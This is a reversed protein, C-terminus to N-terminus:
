NGNPPRWTIFNTILALLGQWRQNFRITAQVPRDLYPRYRNALNTLWHDLRWLRYQWARHSLWRAPGRGDAAERRYYVMFGAFLAPMLAGTIIAPFIALILILDALASIFERQTATSTSVPVALALLIIVMTIMILGLLSIPFLIYRRYHRRWATEQALQASTPTPRTLAHSSTLKSQM